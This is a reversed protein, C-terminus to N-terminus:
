LPQWPTQGIGANHAKLFAKLEEITLQRYESPSVKTALCFEAM